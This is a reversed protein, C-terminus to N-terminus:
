RAAIDFSGYHFPRLSTTTGFRGEPFIVFPPYSQETVNKAIANRVDRRSSKDSRDVFVTAISDAVWGVFPVHFVDATSLFRMPLVAIIVPIDLFSVHNVFLIGHLDILKEEDTCVVEIRLIRNVIRCLWTIM